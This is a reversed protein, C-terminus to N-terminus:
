PLDPDEVYRLTASLVENEYAREGIRIAINLALATGCSRIHSENPQLESTVERNYGFLRKGHLIATM